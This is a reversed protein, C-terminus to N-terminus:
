RQHYRRRLVGANGNSLHAAGALNGAQCHRLCQVLRRSGEALEVLDTKWKEEAAFAAAEETSSGELVSTSGAATREASSGGQRGQQPWSTKPSTILRSLTSGEREEVCQIACSAPAKRPSGNKAQVQAHGGGHWKGKGTAYGRVCKGNRALM